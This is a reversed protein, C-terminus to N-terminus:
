LPLWNFSTSELNASFVVHEDEANTCEVRLNVPGIEPFIAIRAASNIYNSGCLTEYSIVPKRKDISQGYVSDTNIVHALFYGAVTEVKEMSSYEEMGSASMRIGGCAAKNDCGHMLNYEVIRTGAQMLPSKYIIPPTINQQSALANEALWYRINRGDQIAVRKLSGSEDQQVYSVLTVAEQEGDLAFTTTEKMVQMVGSENLPRALQGTEYEIKLTGTFAEPMLEGTRNKQGMVSYEISDGDQYVRLNKRDSYYPVAVVSELSRLEINQVESQATIIVFYDLGDNKVSYTFPSSVDLVAAGGDLEDFTEPTVGSERAIYFNYQDAGAVQEWDVTISNVSYQTSLINPNVLEISSTKNIAGISALIAIGFLALVFFLLLYSKKGPTVIM